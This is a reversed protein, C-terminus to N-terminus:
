FNNLRDALISVYAKMVILQNALRKQEKLDILKYFDTLTFAELDREKKCLEKYEELVRQQYPQLNELKEPLLDCEESFLENFMQKPSWSIYGKHDKHNTLSSNMDEVLFGEDTGNEDAPLEWGRYNNYELRTMPQVLVAKVGFYNKM